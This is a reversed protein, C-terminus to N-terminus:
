IRCKGGKNVSITELRRVIGDYNERLVAELVEGKRLGLVYTLLVDKPLNKRLFSLHCDKDSSDDFLIASVIGTLVNKPIFGMSLCIQAAGLLRGELDLKRLPERAVRSIPDFLLSNSFRRLEKAAYWELFKHPVEWRLKLAALMERMAGEVIRQADPSAMAEHLYKKGLLAGLYAAICHTTNHLFLKATWQNKLEAEACFTIKGALPGANKDVFLVGDETHIAMPDKKLNVPSATCSSIVDPIAFYVRKSKLVSRVVGVSRPDNECLIIPCELGKLCKAAAACNRPGVSMFVAVPDKPGRAAYEDPSFVLRASVARSVLKGNRSIYSTYGGRKKLLALLEPNSDVFVFEYKAPDFVWPMFGRGIAGAGLIIIRKM